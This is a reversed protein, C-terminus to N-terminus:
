TVPTHGARARAVFRAIAAADKHRPSTEVGTAVDVGWPHVQRIAAAVNDPQLGGALLVKRRTVLDGVTTWDFPEGSGPAPGDILVIAAPHEDIPRRPVDEITMALILMQVEAAVAYLVDTPYDGQLQAGHLGLTDVLDLVEDASHGRFVGVTTVHAPTAALIAHAQAVDIHRRSEPVFNLGIADVGAHAAAAADQPRTIGCIKVFVFAVTTTCLASGAAM